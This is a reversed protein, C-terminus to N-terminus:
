SSYVILWDVSGLRGGVGTREGMWQDDRKHTGAQQQKAICNLSMGLITHVATQQTLPWFRPPSILVIIALSHQWHSSHMCCYNTSSHNHPDFVTAADMLLHTHTRLQWWAHHWLISFASELLRQEDIKVIQKQQFIHFCSSLKVLHQQMIDNSHM